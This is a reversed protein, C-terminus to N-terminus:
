QGLTGSPSFNRTFRCSGLSPSAESWSPFSFNYMMIPFIMTTTHLQEWSISNLENCDHSLAYQRRLRIHTVVSEACHLVDSLSISVLSGFSNPCQSFLLWSFTLSCISRNRVENPGQVTICPLVAVPVFAWWCGSLCVVYCTSVCHVLGMLCVSFYIVLRAGTAPGFTWVSCIERSCRCVM